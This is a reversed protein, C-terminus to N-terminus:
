LHFESPICSWVLLIYSSSSTAALSLPAVSALPYALFATTMSFSSFIKGSLVSSLLSCAERSASDFPVLPLPYWYVSCYFPQQPPTLVSPVPPPKPLPHCYLVLFVFFTHNKRLHAEWQSPPLFTRFILLLNLSTQSNCLFRINILETSFNGTSSNISGSM